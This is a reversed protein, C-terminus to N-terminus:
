LRSLGTSSSHHLRISTKGRKDKNTVTAASSNLPSTIQSFGPVLRRYYSAFGLFSKLGKINEPRKRQVAAAVKDTAVEDPSVVHRLQKVRQWFVKLNERQLRQLVLELRQLDDKLM